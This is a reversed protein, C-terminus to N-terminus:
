QQAALRAGHESNIALRTAVLRLFYFSLAPNRECLRKLESSSIWLLQADGIARASHTRKRYVSFLGVEGLVDGASLIQHIDSIAVRGSNIIFLADAYDGKRFVFEGSSVQRVKMFPQLWAASLDTAASRKAQRAISVARYLQFVNLPLLVLHLILVPHVGAVFGFGIFACNSGIATIRLMVMTRMCFTLLVLVSAFYGLIDVLRM